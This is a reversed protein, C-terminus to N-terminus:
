KVAGLTNLITFFNPFSTNICAIDDVTTTGDMCAGAIILSMAIRHDGYSQVQAGTMCAGGKVIFGDDTEHIAAGLKSFEKVTTKIRDSEKNRLERADKVITAGSAYAAACALIPIEDILLPIENGSITTGHLSSQHVVIDGVPEGSEVHQNEVSIHAGMRKLVTIIGTRTPNIGVNHILLGEPAAHLLGLVIFFAASSIDGPVIYHNVPIAAPPTLTLVGNHKELSIGLHVFMNETHDRSSVPEHIITKEDACLGALLLCSKIQASAVPLTYNIGKLHTGHIELPLFQDDRATINAGMSRLPAIIRQMPRRTLSADGTLVAHVNPQGAIIGALLRVGTGSNGLDLNHAPTKLGHVGVGHVTIGNHEDTYAVGMAHLANLTNLCDEARLPHEVFSTGDGLAALMFARHTISKDPDVTISGSVHPSLTVSFSTM